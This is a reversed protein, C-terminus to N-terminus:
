HGRKGFRLHKASQKRTVLMPVAVGGALSMLVFMVKLGNSVTEYLTQTFAEPPVDGSLRILGLMMRYAFLGPVMPIVAPISFVLPPAHKGHAFPISLVGIVIAGLFSAIIFNIDFQLLLLRTMGGMAGILFISPLTRAPVNFLVSFGMAAIGFWIVKEILTWDM